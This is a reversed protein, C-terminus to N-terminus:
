PWESSNFASATEAYDSQGISHFMEVETEVEGEERESDNDGNQSRRQSSQFYGDITTQGVPRKGKNKPRKPPRDLPRMPLERGNRNPPPLSGVAFRAPFREMFPFREPRIEQTWNDETPYYRLTNDPHKDDYWSCRKIFEPCNRDWSAHSDNKCSACYRKGEESCDNTRHDGGCTGCTSNVKKCDSAFHGWGRCKMCQTPEQKLKNPYLRAGCITLGEKICQNAANPTTLLLSAHAVRQDPKRRYVPKIWRAKAIANKELGSVEEIERLHGDNEPDFTIPIRPVIVAFYRPKIEAGAFFHMAFSNGVNPLRLWNAAEKTNFNIIIGTKRSRAIHAISTDTPPPPDVVLNIANKVKEQIADTSFALLQQEPVEILVQREKRETATNIAGGTERAELSPQRDYNQPPNSMLVDKYSRATNVLETASETAKNFIAELDATAKSLKNTAEGIGDTIRSIEEPEPIKTDLVKSIEDIKDEIGMQIDKAQEELMEPLFDTRTCGACHADMNEAIVSFALMAKAIHEPTKPYIRIVMHQIARALSLPTCPEQLGLIHATALHSRAEKYKAQHDTKGNSEKTTSRTVRGTSSGTNQPNPTESRLERDPKQAPKKGKAGTEQSM